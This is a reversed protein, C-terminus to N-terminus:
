DIPCIVNAELIKELKAKVLLAVNPHMKRLKQLVIKIKPDVILHHVVLKPDLGPMDQYSWAFRGINEWLVEILLNAQEQPLSAAIYTILPIDMLSINAHRSEEVLITSM